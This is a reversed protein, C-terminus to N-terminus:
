AGPAMRVQLIKRDSRATRRYARPSMGCARHFSRVFNSLDAFGVELAIDTIPRDEDVLLQAARRLRCRLLYQHPTIGLVSSFLRLYHYVSLGAQASLMRLDVADAAHAEIWHASEIARGRDAPRPRVSPRHLGAIIDVVKAALALGIEDVRPGQPRRVAGRALEGVAILEALPPLGGSPWAGRRGGIDDAVEPDIFFALCEDGGHHHDHTCTYEDGPRGLLVSGPLLEFQRGQCACSFSGALVYSVSWAQHQEAFPSETGGAACVYVSASVPGRVLPTITPM